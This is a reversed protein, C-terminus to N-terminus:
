KLVSKVALTGLTLTIYPDKLQALQVYRVERLRQLKGLEVHQVRQENDMRKRGRIFMLMTMSVFNNKLSQNKASYLQTVRTNMIKTLSLFANKQLNVFKSM